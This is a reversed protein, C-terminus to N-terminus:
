PDETVYFESISKTCTAHSGPAQQSQGCRCSGGHWSPKHPEYSACDHRVRLARPQRLRERLACPQQWHVQRRPWLPRHECVPGQPHGQRMDRQVLLHPRTRQSGGRWRLQDPLAGRHMPAAGLRCHRHQRGDLQLYEVQRLEQHSGEDRLTKAYEDVQVTITTELPALAIYSVEPTSTDTDTPGQRVRLIESRGAIYVHEELNQEDSHESRM